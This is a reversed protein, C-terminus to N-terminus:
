AGAADGARVRFVCSMVAPHHSLETTFRVGGVRNGDGHEDRDSSVQHGARADPLLRQREAACRARHAMARARQACAAPASRRRPRAIGTRRREAHSDAHAQVSWWNASKGCGGRPGSAGSGLRGLSEGFGADSALRIVVHEHKQLCAHHSPRSRWSRLPESALIATSTFDISSTTGREAVLHARSRQRCPFSTACRAAVEEVQVHAERVRGVHSKLLPGIPPGCSAALSNSGESRTASVSARSWWKNPPRRAM